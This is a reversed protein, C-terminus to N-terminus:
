TPQVSQDGRMHLGAQSLTYAIDSPQPLQVGLWSHYLQDDDRVILIAPLTTIDYFDCIQVAERAKGSLQVLQATEPLQTRLEDAIRGLAQENAHSGDSIFYTAPGDHDHRKTFSLM